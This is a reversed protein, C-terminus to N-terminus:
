AITFSALRLKTSSFLISLPPCFTIPSHLLHSLTELYIPIRGRGSSFCASRAFFSCNGKNMWRAIALHLSLLWQQIRGM